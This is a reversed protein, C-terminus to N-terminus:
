KKEDDDDDDEKVNDDDVLKVNEDNIDDRYIQGGEPSFNESIVVSCSTFHSINNM